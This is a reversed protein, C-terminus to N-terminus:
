LGYMIHYIVLFVGIGFIYGILVPLSIKRLYWGFSIKEMGMVVVGAASGIILLSGGTGVCYALMEWLKSDVPYTALNYMGMAAATLPVNDIISSFLGMFIVVINMSTFHNNMWLALQNLIGSTEISAVTLLIGLFFLVSSIDIRTLMQPVKLDDNIKNLLDTFVWMGGLGFMIGMYPPIGLVVKLIPVFIFLSIGLFLVKKADSNNIVGDEKQSLVPLTESKIHRSLFLLPVVMAILSPIFIAKIINATTIRGGIWLMTTTVDGMPSWAGGANAAIIIMSAFVLRDKREQILKRVLAVMIISTTLNDLLASMFFTISAIIWFVKFKQRTKIFNTIIQFGSHADILEVITMAGMLFIIVQSIEGLHEILHHLSAENPPYYEFFNFGWCFVAMLLAVAAKNVKLKSELTIAVYGIAFVTIMLFNM